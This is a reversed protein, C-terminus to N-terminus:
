FYKVWVRKGDAVIGLKLIDKIGRDLLEQEYKKEEIQNLAKELADEVKEKRRKNLKKLEIVIGKQKKDKPILMVDFYGYGSERNSKIEYEDQLGVLLGLIFAQYVREPEDKKTDHFSLMSLVFEEFLDAFLEVDGNILAKLLEQHKQSGIVEALWNSVVQRYFKLVENNPIKMVNAKVGGDNDMITETNKLYGSFLLLSWVAENYKEIDRLIINKDITKTISGGNILNVIDAKFYSGGATILNRILENSSTNIWYPKLGDSFKNIYSLISWPNYIIEDGFIYGNYWFSVDKIKDKLGYDSLVNLVEKETFGFWSPFYKSIISYVELNNLGTFISEKAIRLTGTIVSKELYKDNDKLGGSLFNRMFLIINDYYDNAHGSHIPTDYEDILLVPKSQHHLTLCRTLINLACEFEAEESIENIINKFKLKDKEGIAKSNLIYNHKEFEYSITSKMSVLCDKWSKHKMDKFTFFIVPYKGQVQRYKDETKWIALDKFLEESDKISCDYFYQLMSLNLTKGFRRPRPILLVDSGTDIVEKIFLSKDVYYYNGKIIERFDSKGIAIKKKM